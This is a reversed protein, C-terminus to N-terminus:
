RNAKGRSGEVVEALTNDLSGLIRAGKSHHSAVFETTEKSHCRACDKPTVLTSVTFGYHDMADPDGKNAAHCEYCGVNARFHKSDGWQQYVVIDSKRHCTICEQTEDSLKPLGIAQAWAGTVLLGVVSAAWVHGSKM